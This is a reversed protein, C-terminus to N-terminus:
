QSISQYKNPENPLNSTDIKNQHQRGLLYSLVALVLMSIIRQIGDDKVTIFYYMSAILGVLLLLIKQNLNM